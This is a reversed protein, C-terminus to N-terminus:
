QRSGAHWAHAEARLRVLVAEDTENPLRLKYKAVSEFFVPSPKGDDTNVIASLLPKGEDHCQRDIERLIAETEAISM